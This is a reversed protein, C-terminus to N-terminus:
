PRRHYPYSHCIHDCRTLDETPLRGYVREVMRTDAHGLVPAILEIPAGSARLWTACTHRLDNPTCHPIGLKDCAVALDRCLKGWPGFLMGNKGEAHKLAYELLRWQDETVIPVIRRRQTRKTGDLFVASM